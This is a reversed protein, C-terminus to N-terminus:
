KAKSVVLIWHDGAKTKSVLKHGVKECWTPVDSATGPDTSLLEVEDGVELLKLMAILEMMPGPCAANRADILKRESMVNIM